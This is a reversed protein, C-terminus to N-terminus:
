SYNRSAAGDRGSVLSGSHEALKRVRRPPDRRTSIGRAIKTPEVESHAEVDASMGTGALAGSGTALAM